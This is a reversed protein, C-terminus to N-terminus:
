VCGCCEDVFPEVVFKTTRVFYDERKGSEDQKMTQNLFM